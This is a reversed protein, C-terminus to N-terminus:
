KRDVVSRNLAFVEIFFSKWFTISDGYIWGSRKDELEMTYSNCPSKPCHQWIGIYLLVFLSNSVASDNSAKHYLKSQSTEFLESLMWNRRNKDTRGFFTVKNLSDRAHKMSCKKHIYAFVWCIHFAFMSKQKQTACRVGCPTGFTMHSLLYTYCM